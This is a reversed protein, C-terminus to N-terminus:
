HNQPHIMKKLSDILSDIKSVWPAQECPNQITPTLQVGFNILKAFENKASGPFSELNQIEALM